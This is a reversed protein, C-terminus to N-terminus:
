FMKLTVHFGRTGLGVTWVGAQSKVLRGRVECCIPHPGCPDETPSLEQWLDNQHMGCFDFGEGWTAPLVRQPGRTKANWELFKRSIYCFYFSDFNFFFYNYIYKIM